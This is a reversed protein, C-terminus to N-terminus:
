SPSETGLSQFLLSEPRMFSLLFVHGEMFLPLFFFVRERDKARQERKDEQQATCANCRVVFARREGPMSANIGPASDQAGVRTGPLWFLLCRFVLCPKIIQEPPL